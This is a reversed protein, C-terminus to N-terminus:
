YYCWPIELETGPLILSPNDGISKQNYEYIEWWRKGDLYYKEALKWLSDGNEVIFTLTYPAEQPEMDTEEEPEDESEEVKADATHINNEEQLALLRSRRIYKFEETEQKWLFYAEEYIAMSDDDNEDEPYVYEPYIIRMDLYGDGDLDEFSILDTKWVSLVVTKEQLLRGDEAMRVEMRYSDVNNSYFYKSLDYVYRDREESIRFHITMEPLNPSLRVRYEAEKLMGFFGDARIETFTREPNELKSVRQTHNLWYLEDGCLQYGLKYNSDLLYHFAYFHEDVAFKNEETIDECALFYLYGDYIVATRKTLKVRYPPDAELFEEIRNQEIYCSNGRINEVYCEEPVTYLRYEYGETPLNQELYEYVDTALIDESLRLKVFCWVVGNKEKQLMSEKKSLLDGVLSESEDYFEWIFDATKDDVWVYAYAYDQNRTTSLLCDTWYRLAQGEGYHVRASVQEGFLWSIQWLFSLLLIVSTIKVLIKLM